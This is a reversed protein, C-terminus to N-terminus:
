IRKDQYMLFSRITERGGGSIRSCKEPETGVVPTDDDNAVAVGGDRDLELLERWRAEGRRGRLDALWLLEFKSALSLEEYTKRKAM